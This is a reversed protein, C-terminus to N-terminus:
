FLITSLRVVYSVFITDAVVRFSKANPIEKPSPLADQRIHIKPANPLTLIPQNFFSLFVFNAILAM